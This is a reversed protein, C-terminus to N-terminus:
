LNQMAFVRLSFLAQVPWDERADGLGDISFRKRQFPLLVGAALEAGVHAWVYDLSLELPAAGWLSRDQEVRTYGRARMSRVGLYAGTCLALHPALSLCGRASAARLESRLDGPGFNTRRPLAWLAGVGVRWRERALALEALLVPAVDRPTGLLMGAGVGERLAFRTRAPAALPKPAAAELPPEPAADLLLALAVATAGALADCDPGPADLERASGDGAVIRARLTGGAVSFTTRYGASEALAEPGRLRALTAEFTARCDSQAHVSSAGIALAVLAGYSARAAFRVQDSVSGAGV